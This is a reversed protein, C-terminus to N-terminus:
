KFKSYIVNLKIASPNNKGGALRTSSLSMDNAVRTLVQSGSVTTYSTTVPVITAKNWNPHARMYEAETMGPHSTIYNMKADYMFKILSSINSFSYSNTSSSFSTLLSSRYDAVKNTAFFNDVSDSPLILLTTPAPLSYNSLVKNNERKLTFSAANLTDLEHGKIIEDVPITVQTVIGSPTKLYTCSNDAAINELEQTNQSVYTKQLVEETGVFTAVGTYIYHLKGDKEYKSIYNPSISDTTLYRFYVNLQSLNIYAMSGIGNTSEVYFGPCVKNIFTYSNHFNNKDEYFKQMVYTGYNNYEKGEKDTYPENLSVPICALNKWRDNDSITYDALSYTKQKHIGGERIYGNEFPSFTSYYKKGEELPHDFEHLTCKMSALSDGYFSTFYIRVECSDAIVKGDNKSILSDLPPFQYDDLTHFQTMFNSTIYSGTEIDKIRGLYGTNSRSIVSPTVVSESLINLVSTTVEINDHIDTISTGVGETTDDCSSMVILLTILPLFIRKM